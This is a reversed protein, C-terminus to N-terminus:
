GLEEEQHLRQKSGFSRQSPYLASNRMPQDCCKMAYALLANLNGGHCGTSTAKISKLSSTCQFQTLNSRAELIVLNTRETRCYQSPRKELNIFVLATNLFFLFFIKNIFFVSYLMSRSGVIEIKIKIENQELHLKKSILLTQKYSRVLRETAPIACGSSAGARTHGQTSTRPESKGGLCSFRELAASNTSAQRTMTHVLNGGRCVTPTSHM